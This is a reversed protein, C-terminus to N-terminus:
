INIRNMKRKGSSPQYLTQGAKKGLRKSASPFKGYTKLFQPIKKPLFKLDKESFRLWTDEPIM